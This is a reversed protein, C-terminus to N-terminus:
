FFFFPIFYFSLKMKACRLRHGTFNIGVVNYKGLNGSCKMTAKWRVAYFASFDLPFVLKTVLNWQFFFHIGIGYFVWLLWLDPRHTANWTTLENDMVINGCDPFRIKTMQKLSQGWWLKFRFQWSYCFQCIQLEVRWKGKRNTQHIHLNATFHGLVLLFILSFSRTTTEYCFKVVIGQRGGADIDKSKFCM